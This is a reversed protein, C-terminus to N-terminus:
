DQYIDKDNQSDECHATMPSLGKRVNKGRTTRIIKADTPAAMDAVADEVFKKEPPVLEPPPTENPALEVLPVAKVV